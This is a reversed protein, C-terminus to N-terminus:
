VDRGSRPLMRELEPERDLLQHKLAGAVHLGFLVYLTDAFWTHLQGFRTHLSEKLVPDLTTIAHIRPWDIIGFLRMPHSAADKWASDHLWGSLPLALMLAYLLVHVIHASHREWAAYTSALPPPPHSLRWLLRILVLGLVTIGISKHVDIVPRVAGDPLYDVSLALGINVALAVAIMWHLLMAMGTYRTPVGGAAVRGLGPGQRQPLWDTRETLVAFWGLIAGSHRMLQFCFPETLAALGALVWERPTSKQGRWRNYFWVGWLLFVFDIALKVGIVALVPLLV